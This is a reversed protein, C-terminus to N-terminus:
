SFFVTAIQSAINYDDCDMKKIIDKSNSTIAAIYANVRLDLDNAKIGQCHLQVTEIKMRNKYELKNLVIKGDKDQIPFILNQIITFDENIVVLGECVSDIISEILEKNDERKKASKKKYDLWKEVEAQAIERNIVEAM